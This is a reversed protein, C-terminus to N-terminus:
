PIGPLLVEFPLACMAVDFALLYVSFWFVEAPNATLIVPSLLMLLMPSLTPVSVINYHGSSEAPPSPTSITLM